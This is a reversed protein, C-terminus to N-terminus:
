GRVCASDNSVSCVLLSLRMEAHLCDHYVVIYAVCKNVASAIEGCAYVLALMMGEMASRLFGGM